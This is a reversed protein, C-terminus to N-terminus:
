KIIIEEIAKRIHDDQNRVHQQYIMAELTKSESDINGLLNLLKDIAYYVTKFEYELNTYDISENSIVDNELKVLGKKYAILLDKAFSIDIPSDKFIATGSKELVYFSESGISDIVIKAQSIM